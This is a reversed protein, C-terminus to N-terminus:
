KTAPNQKFSNSLISYENKKLFLIKTLFSIEKVNSGKEQM